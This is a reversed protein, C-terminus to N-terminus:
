NNLECHNTLTQISFYLSLSIHDSVATDKSYWAQRKIIHTQTAQRKWINGDYAWLMQETDVTPIVAYVVNILEYISM